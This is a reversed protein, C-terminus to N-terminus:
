DICPATVEEAAHSGTLEPDEPAQDGEGSRVSLPRWTPGDKVWVICICLYM